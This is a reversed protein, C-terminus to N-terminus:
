FLGLPGASWAIHSSAGIAPPQLAVLRGNRWVLIRISPDDLPRDFTIHVRTPLGQETALVRFSAGCSQAADGVQLPERRARYLTEFAGRLLPQELPRLVLERTGSRELEHAQKSGSLISWCALRTPTTTLLAAGAYMTVMPDSAGIVFVRPRAPGIEAERAIREVQRAIHAANATGGWNVFPPLVVNFIALVVAAIGVAGPRRTGRRILVALLPAFGLNPLLLVRAGPFGGLTPILALSAGLVLWPLQQREEFDMDAATVRTLWGLVLLVSLGLGVLRSNPAKRSPTTSAWGAGHEAAAGGARAAAGGLHRAERAVPPATAA